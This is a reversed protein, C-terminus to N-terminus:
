PDQFLTTYFDPESRRSRYRLVIDSIKHKRRVHPPPASDSELRRRRCGNIVMERVLFGLSRRSVVTGDVLPVVLSFKSSTNGHFRIRFLGTRLPHIFILQVDSVCRSTEVGTSTESLLESVPFNEIDDFREVWVILLKTEPGFFSVSSGASKRSEGPPSRPPPAPDRNLNSQSLQNPPLENPPEAEEFSESWEANSSSLSPVVFAIETLADAFYLVFREGNFVGGGSDGLAVSAEPRGGLCNNNKDDSNGNDDNSDNNDDSNINGANHNTAWSTRVSGTWGPHRGVEVLWGLSLLFDLFVPQVSSSSDVNRLIEAATKQGARMYFVFASDCSRSPLRDLSSLAESFGPLSSDLLVLQAPVCSLGPEKLAEPSLLGFHSLFLRTTQFDQVPAPPRCDAPRVLRGSRELKEEFEMQRRMVGELRQVKEEVEKTVIEHLDPISLDAKVFPIKDVNDPFPQHKVSFRIGADEQAVPRCEPVFVQQSAARGERDQQHLQLSWVNRGSLGRILLTLSPCPTQENGLPQELMALIVSNDLVFYRFKRRSNDSLSTCGILTDENLLSCPSAPGSPSPFAGLVQMICSLTAEAADKVRMSAPSQEKDAKYRVEQEQRSKSGSIGLEVIELVEMLCDQHSLLDPHQTLWVTLCHFAAVIMSHLERSHLPPPRSCQFVIYSCVSSVARRRESVEITVQVKALGSLLELASLCVSSDTRWQATLRQTLLCVFRTLLGGATDTHLTYDRQLAQAPRESDPTKPKERSSRSTRSTGSPQSNTGQQTQEVAELLASDQVLNLMAALIMQTNTPDTETQLAGILINILRRKLSLCSVATVDDGSFKGELLVESQVPGFHHPLPLLSLLIHISARRLETPNVFSKFRSLERDPLVNELASVFSPLLVNVGKLDCCFLSSSNLLISALVPCFVESMQLGQLLVLYFRSLYVPLIDEGTKKCTFIRCLTGCAEARGSEWSEPFESVDFLPNSAVSQVPVSSDRWNLRVHVLAADFLWQGFLNLVSNVKSRSPSPLPRSPSSLPPPFPPPQQSSSKWHQSSSSSTMSPKSTAKAVTTPKQRRNHPPTTNTSPPGSPMSLRAVPTPPASDSRPRSIGYSPLRERFNSRTVAVGLSPLRDRVHIRTATVGHNPLLLEPKRNAVNLGLFADVLNSVGRMARFFIYPLQKLCPQQLGDAEGLEEEQFQPTSGVIAPNSLDVPNSLMHLFRFWTQRICENDMDAPILAADEEPVKLPPFSPGYTLLLLRSTLATIARSWQEVVAPQHRWTALMERATKWYPPTPFCHACALLWVEFLVAMLKDALKEAVGGAVTPPALMTHNIRLLFLLLSEWTDRSIVASERALKQVACLVQQCLRFHVPSYHETRPLFLNYLHRLINQVYLNPQKSIPPPTSDRPAVLVMLWDTYVDVCLKVTDGDLPLTLGYCLVEMTWKVERDTSLLSHTNPNGLGTGLPRVVANAVDRGVASPFSQLVSVHGSGVGQESQHVCRWDSYM